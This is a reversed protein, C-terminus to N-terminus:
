FIYNIRIKKNFQFVAHHCPMCPRRIILPLPRAQKAMEPYQQSSAVYLLLERPILCHILCLYFVFINFIPIKNKLHLTLGDSVELYKKNSGQM